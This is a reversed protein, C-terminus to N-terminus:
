RRARSRLLVNEAMDLIFLDGDPREILASPQNLSAPFPATRVGVSHEDGLVTTVAGTEVDVKSIRHKSWEAVLLNGERDFTMGGPSDFTSALATTEGTAITVKFLTPGGQNVFLHGAGDYKLAIPSDVHVPLTTVEATALTIRRIASNGNDAVFLHGDGDYALGSPSSFQAAQGTGDASGGAGADVKGALTTVEGTAIVIKRITNDNYDAVFLHGAGDYAIDSPGFFRATKGTGDTSDGYGPDGGALTTVRGTAIAVQRISAFDVVFLNGAEDSTAALPTNFQAGAGVGDTSVQHPTTGALSTVDGTDIALDRVAYRSGLFLHGDPGRAISELPWDSSAHDPGLLMTVEGTALSIRRVSWQAAVFLNGTGDLAVTPNTFGFASQEAYAAVATIEGTALAQKRITTTSDYHDGNLVQTFDALFLNGAGDSAISVTSAYGGATGALSSVEGTAVAIKRLTGSDQVYLTGAGDYAIGTPAAFRATKGTGDTSDSSGCQSGAGALTAVAGTAPTVKVVVCNVSDTVFLAGAGDSAIGSPASFRATKGTGDTSDAYGAEWARGALTSVEGTQLDVARVTHGVDGTFYGRDTFYLHGSGDFALGAPNTLRAAAGPGDISGDGGPQGAVVDLTRAASHLRPGELNSGVDGHPASAAGSQCAPLVSVLALALRELAQSNRLRM